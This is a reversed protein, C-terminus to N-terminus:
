LLRFHPEPLVITTAFATPAWVFGVMAVAAAAGLFRANM